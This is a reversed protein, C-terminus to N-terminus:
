LLLMDNTEIADLAAVEKATLVMPINELPDELAETIRAKALGEPSMNLKDMSYLLGNSTRCWNQFPAAGSKICADMDADDAPGQSVDEDTSNQGANPILRKQGPNLQAFWKANYFDIPLEKPAKKCNAEPFELCFQMLLERHKQINMNEALEKVKGAEQGPPLSCLPQLYCDM